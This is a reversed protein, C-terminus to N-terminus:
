KQSERELLLTSLFIIIFSFNVKDHKSKVTQRADNLWSLLDATASFPNIFTDIM